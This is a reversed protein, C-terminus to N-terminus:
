VVLYLDVHNIPYPVVLDIVVVLRDKLVPHRKIERITTGELVQGGTIPDYGASFLFDLAGILKTRIVEIATNTVNARGIFPKIVSKLYFSISDVNKVISLERDNLDSVDSMLQQRTYVTGTGVDETVIWVGAGALTNLQDKTFMSNINSNSDFGKVEVNTLGQQPASSGILGAIGASLYYLPVSVGDVKLNPRYVLGFRRNSYNGAKSVLYNVLDSSNKERHVELRSALDVEDTSTATLKIRESTEVSDVVYETYTEAGYKDSGYNFRVKDGVKVGADIFDIGSASDLDIYGDDTLTALVYGDDEETTVVPISTLNEVLPVFGIRWEAIEPISLLGITTEVLDHVDKDYTMPVITYVDERDEIRGLATTYGALNDSEVGIARVSANATTATSVNQLAKYVGYVLPNDPDIPTDFVDLIDTLSSVSYATDTHLTVLERWHIYIDGGVIPLAYEGDRWSNDYEQAGPNLVLETSDQTWNDFALNFLNKNLETNKKICLQLTLDITKSATSVLQSPLSKNLVITRIAGEGEATVPIYYKDGACLEDQDFDIQVGYNGITLASGSFVVPTSADYGDNTKVTLLPKDNASIATADGGRTVTVVYTTDKTGTYTGSSTAVPETFSQSVTVTWKWGVELDDTGGFQFQLGRSGLPINTSYNTATPTYGYTEDKGSATTINVRATSPNLGTSAKTVEITYVETLVGDALGDYTGSVSINDQSGSDAVAATPGASITDPKNTSASAASAIASSVTEAEFDIIQGEGTYEIGDIVASVKAYDGVKVDRGYFDGNLAYGTKDVLNISAVNIKNRSNELTKIVEDPATYTPSSASTQAGATNEWYKLLANELYVKTYEADVTSGSERELDTLWDFTNGILYDYEGHKTKEDANTYRHLNYEPGVIAPRLARTVENATQRFVQFVNVQPVAISSM